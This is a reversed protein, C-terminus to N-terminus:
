MVINHLEEYDFMGFVSRNRCSLILFGYQRTIKVVYSQARKMNLVLQGPVGGGGLVM